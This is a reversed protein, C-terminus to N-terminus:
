VAEEFESAAADCKVQADAKLKHTTKDWVVDCKVIVDVVATIINKKYRGGGSEDVSTDVEEVDFTIDLSGAELAERCKEPLDSFGDFDSWEIDGELDGSFTKLTQGCDACTREMEVSGRVSITGGSEDADLDNVQADGNELGTFKNCDPCRV